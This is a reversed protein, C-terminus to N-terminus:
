RFFDEDSLGMMLMERQSASLKPLLHQILGGKDRWERYAKYEPATLYVRASKASSDVWSPPTVLIVWSGDDNRQEERKPGMGLKDILSM